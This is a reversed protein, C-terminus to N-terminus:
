RKFAHHYFITSSFTPPVILHLSGFVLSQPLFTAPLRVSLQVEFERGSKSIEREDEIM